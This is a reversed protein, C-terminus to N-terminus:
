ERGESNVAQLKIAKYLMRANLSRAEGKKLEELVQYAEEVVLRPPEVKQLFLEEYKHADKEKFTKRIMNLCAATAVVILEAGRKESLTEAQILTEQLKEYDSSDLINEMTEKIKELFSDPRGYGKKVDGLCQEAFSCWEACGMDFRPNSVIRRCKECRVRVDTKWFELENGCDPCKGEFIDDPSWYKTDQGPCKSTRM